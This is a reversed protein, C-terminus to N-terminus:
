HLQLIFPQFELHVIKCVPIGLITSPKSRIQVLGRARQWLEKTARPSPAPVRIEALKSWAVELWAVQHSRAERAEPEQQAQKGLDSEEGLIGVCGQNTRAAWSPYIQETLLEQEWRQKGKPLLSWEQGMRESKKNDISSSVCRKSQHQAAVLRFFASIATHQNLLSTCRSAFYQRWSFFLGASGLSPILGTSSGWITEM